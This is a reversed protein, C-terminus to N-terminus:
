SPVAFSLLIEAIAGVNGLLAPLISKEFRVPVILICSVRHNRGAFCCCGLTFNFRYLCASVCARCIVLQFGEM